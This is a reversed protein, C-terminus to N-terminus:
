IDKEIVKYIVCVLGTVLNIQHCKTCIVEVEPLDSVLPFQWHYKDFPLEKNCYVCEVDNSREM